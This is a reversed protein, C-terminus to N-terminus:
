WTVPLEHVGYIAMDSRMPVENAPVALRLNPFHRTLKAFASRMEMRALQQGLCQHIGYGFGVHRIADRTVDLIEPNDFHGSDRNASALAVVVSEGARIEQSGVM